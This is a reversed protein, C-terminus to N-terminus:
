KEGPLGMKKALAKFRPESHLSDLAPEHLLRVMLPEHQEYARELYRLAEGKRNARAAFGALTLQAVYETKATEKLRALRVDMVGVFGNKRYAEELAKMMDDPDELARAKKLEAMAEPYERKREHIASLFEHLFADKPQAASRQQFEKLAEDLRGARYLAYGYAWGRGFPDMEVCRKDEQLSEEMRNQADLIYAHLHHSEALGPNLELARESEKEATEWDWRLFLENAAFAHHAEASEDDLELARKAAPEAKAIASASPMLGSVASATYADALGAYAGAYKPDLRITQEFFEASKMYQGITWYERGQFYADRAAPNAPPQSARMTAEAPSTAINVREAISRALEQQLTLADGLDRDYSQAWLHTDTPAYILQARVRVRGQARSVSGEIVGDVGLERAIEPLPRRVGKYQMVSTRSIVRLSPYKALMTILEDTMGDAFFEQEKDGSINELPLVAISRIKPEKEARTLRPWAFKAVPWALLIVAAAAIWAWKRKSRNSKKTTLPDFGDPRDTAPGETAISAKAETPAAPSTTQTAERGAGGEAVVKVDAIFRYGKKQVTQVFKPEDPDDGLAQRVKRVATNIGHEADVFVGKGWIKEEIEERTVLRGDSEALLILLEMPIKELKLAREDKRVEYRTCDLSFEGFKLIKLDV